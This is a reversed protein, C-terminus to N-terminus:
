RMLARMNWLEEDWEPDKSCYYKDAEKWVADLISKRFDEEFGEDIEQQEEDDEVKEYYLHMKDAMKTRDDFSLRNIISDIVIECKNIDFEDNDGEVLIQGMRFFMNPFDDNHEYPARKLHWVSTSVIQDATLKKPM